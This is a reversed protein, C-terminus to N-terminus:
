ILRFTHLDDIPEFRRKVEYRINNLAHLKMEASTFGEALDDINFNHISRFRDAEEESIVPAKRIESRLHLLGEM